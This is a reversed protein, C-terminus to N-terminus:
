TSVLPTFALVGSPLSMRTVPGPSNLWSAANTDTVGGTSPDGNVAVYQIVGGPPVHSHLQQTGARRRPGIVALGSAGFAASVERVLHLDHHLFQALREIPDLKAAIGAHQFRLSKVADATRAQWNKIRQAEDLIIVDPALERNIDDADRLIQEYNALNFFAPRRYAELRAARSGTRTM